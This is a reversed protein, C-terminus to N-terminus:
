TIISFISLISIIALIKALYKFRKEHVVKWIAFNLILKLLLQAFISIFYFSTEYKGENIAIIVLIFDIILCSITIAIMRKDKRDLKKPKAKEIELKLM